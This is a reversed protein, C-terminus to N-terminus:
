AKTLSLKQTSVQSSFTNATVRFVCKSTPTSKIKNTHAMSFAWNPQPLTTLKDLAKPDPQLKRLFTDKPIHLWTHKFLAARSLCLHERCAAGEPSFLHTLSPLLEAEAFVLSCRTDSVTYIPTNIVISRAHECSCGPKMGTAIVMWRAKRKPKM